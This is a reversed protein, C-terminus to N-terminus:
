IFIILGYSKFEGGYYGPQASALVKERIEDVTTIGTVDAIKDGYNEKM